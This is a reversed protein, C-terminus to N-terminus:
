ENARKRPAAARNFRPYANSRNINQLKERNNRCTYSSFQKGSRGFGINNSTFRIERWRFMRSIPITQVTRPCM